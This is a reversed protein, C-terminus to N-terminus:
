LPVPRSTALGWTLLICKDAIRGDLARVGIVLHTLFIEIKELRMAVAPHAAVGDHGPPAIVDEEGLCRDVVELGPHGLADYLRWMIREGYRLGADSEVIDIIYAAGASMVREELHQGMM